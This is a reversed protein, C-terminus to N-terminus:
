SLQVAALSVEISFNINFYNKQVICDIYAFKGDSWKSDTLIFCKELHAYVNSNTLRAVCSIQLLVHIKCRLSIM